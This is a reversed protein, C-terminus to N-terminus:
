RGKKSEVSHKINALLKEFVKSDIKATLSYDAYQQINLIEELQVLLLRNSELQKNYLVMLSSHKQKADLYRQIDVSFDYNINDRIYKYEHIDSLLVDCNLGISRYLSIIRNNKRVKEMKNRFDKSLRAYWRDESEVEKRINLLGNLLSELVSYLPSSKFKVELDKLLSEQETIRSKLLVIEESLANHYSVLLDGYQEQFAPSKLDLVCTVNSM